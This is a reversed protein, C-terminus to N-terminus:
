ERPLDKTTVNIIVVSLEGLTGYPISIEQYIETLTQVEYKIALLIEFTM